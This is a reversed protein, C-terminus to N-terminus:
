GIVPQPALFHDVDALRDVEFWAVEGTGMLRVYVRLNRQNQDPCDIDLVEVVEDADFVPLVRYGKGDTQYLHDTTLRFTQAVLHRGIQCGVDRSSDSPTTNTAFPSASVPVALLAAFSLAAAIRLTFTRLSFTPSSFM